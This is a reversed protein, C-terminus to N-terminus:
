WGLEGVNRNCLEEEAGIRRRGRDEAEGDGLCGSDGVEGQNELGV